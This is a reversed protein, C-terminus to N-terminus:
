APTRVPQLPDFDVPPIELGLRRAIAELAALDGPRGLKVHLLPELEAAAVGTAEALAAPTTLDREELCRDISIQLRLMRLRETHRRARETTEPM